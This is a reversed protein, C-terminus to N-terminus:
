HLCAGPGIRGSGLAGLPQHDAQLAILGAVSIEAFGPAFRLQTATQTPRDSPNIHGSRRPRHWSSPHHCPPTPNPPPPPTLDECPRLCECSVPTNTKERTPPCPTATPLRWSFLLFHSWVFRFGTQCKFFFVFFWM